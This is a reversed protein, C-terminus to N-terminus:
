HALGSYAYIFLLLLLVVIVDGLINGVKQATRQETAM